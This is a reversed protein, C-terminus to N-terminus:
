GNLVVTKPGNMFVRHEAHWKIARSFVSAEVERGLAVMDNATTTHTVRRVDQEIIPGEDLDATVYHATAGILKVGRAHAQHYPRAGKFSPLFSHHINICKGSLYTSMDDSLIQMYRALVLLDTHSDEIIARLKQEQQPKTQKSIPLHHFPIGRDEILTRVTEHNSVVGVIDIPLTGIRTKHLIDNLCHDHKSVAVLVRMKTQLNHLSWDFSLERALPVFAEELGAQKSTQTSIHMRVFFQETEPAGYVIADRIDCGQDALLLSIKAVIGPGDPCKVRLIYDSPEKM